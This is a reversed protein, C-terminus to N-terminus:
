TIASLDPLVDNKKTLDEDYFMLGQYSPSESMSDMFVSLDKYLDIPKILLDDIGKQVNLYKNISSLLKIFMMADENSIIYNIKKLVKNIDILCVEAIKLNNKNASELLSLYDDKIDFNYERLKTILSSLKNLFDEKNSNNMDYM